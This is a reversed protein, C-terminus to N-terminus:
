QHRLRMVHVCTSICRIYASGRLCVCGMCINLCFRVENDHMIDEFADMMQSPTEFAMSERVVDVLRSVDGRYARHAKQVARDSSKLKTWMIKHEDAHGMVDEWAVWEGGQLPFM